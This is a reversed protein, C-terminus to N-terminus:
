RQATGGDAAEVHMQVYPPGCLGCLIGESWLAYSSALMRDIQGCRPCTLTVSDIPPDDDPATSVSGPSPVV